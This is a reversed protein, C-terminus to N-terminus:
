TVTFQGMMGNDEHELIHCHYMYPHEAGAHQHFPALLEVTEGRRVLVVDKWGREHAPPRNGNRSRIMFSTGHLHIPHAMSSRNTLRWLATHGQQMRANIVDMNMYHSNIAFLENGGVGMSMGGPGSASRASFGSRMMGMMGGGMMMGNLTFDQVPGDAQPQPPAILHSPLRTSLGSSQGVRLELLDFRGHDYGDVGMPMRYLAPVVAGSNSRLVLKRGQDHRLDVLIEAREAPALLLAHMSVPHELLGADGAIVHFERGDAFALNYLRANSGNLVRLRLWGAAVEAYPQEVGNVLFHDGKMGMTDPKTTMYALRGDSELRRDQLALPLDDVGYTHPLGLRADVGDDVLMFGALGAYVQPGTFNHPHPHYWLTGAPQDLTFAATWDKGPAILNHPGGDMRGPVQAGHCHLTTPVDLGNHVRLRLPQGRPVRLTPGLLAGNYGWTPTHVGAVLESGGGAAHLAYHRTGQSDAHGSLQPPVPLARSFVGPAAKAASRSHGMMGGMMGGQAQASSTHLGLALLGGGATLAQLARRRGTDVKDRQSM